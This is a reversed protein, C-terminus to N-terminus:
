FPMLFAFFYFFLFHLWKLQDIKFATTNQLHDLIKGPTGSLITIGKRLRQKEAKKNDGGMVHGIFFVVYM